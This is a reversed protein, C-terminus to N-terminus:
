PVPHGASIRARHKLQRQTLRRLEALVVDAGLVDQEAEHPFTVAHGRLHQHLQAGIQVPHALLHGGYGGARSPM